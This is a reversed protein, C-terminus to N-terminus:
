APSIDALLASLKEMDVPKSFHHDFGASAANKKDQDQCYGTLAILVSKSTTPLTRLRRALAYGDMDPLGIDLICVQPSVNKARDIASAAAYEVLVQHGCADLLMVLMNAADVNDDVVLVRLSSPPIKQADM